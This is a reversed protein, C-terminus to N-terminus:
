VVLCFKSLAVINGFTNNILFLKVQFSHLICFPETYVCPIVTTESHCPASSELSVDELSAGSFCFESSKLIWCMMDLKFKGSHSIICCISILWKLYESTNSLYNKSCNVYSIKSTEPICFPLKFVIYMALREGHYGDTVM